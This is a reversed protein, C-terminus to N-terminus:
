FAAWTAFAGLGKAFTIKARQDMPLPGGPPIPTRLKPIPRSPPDAGALLPAKTTGNALCRDRIAKAKDSSNTTGRETEQVDIWDLHEDQRRNYVSHRRGWEQEDQHPHLTVRARQNLAHITASRLDKPPEGDHDHRCCATPGNAVAPQLRRIRTVIM